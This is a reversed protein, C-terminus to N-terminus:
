ESAVAPRAGSAARADATRPPRPVPFPGEAAAAFEASLDGNVTM